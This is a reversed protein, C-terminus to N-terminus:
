YKGEKKSGSINIYVFGNLFAWDNIHVFATDPSFVVGEPIEYHAIPINARAQAIDAQLSVPLATSILISM